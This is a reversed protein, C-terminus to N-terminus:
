VSMCVITQKEPVNSEHAQCCDDEIWAYLYVLKGGGFSWGEGEVWLPFVVGM